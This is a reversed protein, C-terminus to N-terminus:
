MMGNGNHKKLTSTTMVSATPKADRPKPAAEEWASGILAKIKALMNRNEFPKTMYEDAGMEKGKQIDEPASKASLFCIKIGKLKDNGKIFKCLEYGNMEPMMIDLVILDPRIERLGAIMDKASTFTWVRYRNITLLDKVLELVDPEDDVVFISNGGM